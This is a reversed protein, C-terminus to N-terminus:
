GLKGTKERYLLYKQGNFRFDTTTSEGATAVLSEINKCGKSRTEQITLGLMGSSLVVQPGTSLDRIIWFPGVNAGVFPDGNGVVVLDRERAGCLHVLSAALGEQTLKTIPPNHAMEKRMLDDNALATLEADSLDVPNQVADELNFFRQEVASKSSSQASAVVCLATVVLVNWVIKM